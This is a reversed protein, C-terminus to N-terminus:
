SCRTAHGRRGVVSMLTIPTMANNLKCIVTIENYYSRQIVLHFAVRDFRPPWNDLLGVRRFARTREAADAKKLFM